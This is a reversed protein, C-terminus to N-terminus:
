YKGQAKYKIQDKYSKWDSACNIYNKLLHSQEETLDVQFFTSRTDVRLTKLKEVKLLNSIKATNIIQGSYGNCNYPFVYNGGSYREGNHFMFYIPNYDDVCDGKKIKFILKPYTGKTIGALVYVSFDGLDIEDTIIKTTATVDDNIVKLCNQDTQSFSINAFSFLIIFITFKSM